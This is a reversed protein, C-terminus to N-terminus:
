GDAKKGKMPLFKMPKIYGDKPGFEFFNLVSNYYIDLVPGSQNVYFGCRNEPNEPYLPYLGVVCWAGKPAQKLRKQSRAANRPVFLIAIYPQMVFSEYFEFRGKKGEFLITNARADRLWTALECKLNNLREQLFKIGDAVGLHKTNM